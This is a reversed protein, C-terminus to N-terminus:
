QDSKNERVGNFNNMAADMGDQFIGLVAEAAREVAHKVTAREGPLFMGLVFDVRSEGPPVKGVGVRVRAIEDTGAHDIVSQLGNHGGASGRKRLRLAGLELEVDDLVVVVDAAAIGKKRMLPGTAEGSSNMYTLPKVLLVAEGAHTLEALEAPFRWSKRFGVGATEALRDLVAFGVNHRTHDYKRGPNGLGVVMKM